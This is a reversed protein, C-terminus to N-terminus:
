KRALMTALLKLSEAGGTGVAIDEGANLRADPEGLGGSGNTNSGQHSPTKM